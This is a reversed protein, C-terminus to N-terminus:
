RDIERITDDITAESYDFEIRRCLNRSINTKIPGKRQRVYGSQTVGTIFSAIPSESYTFETSRVLYDDVKLRKKSFSPVHAGPPLAPVHAGRIRGSVLFVSGPSYGVNRADRTRM